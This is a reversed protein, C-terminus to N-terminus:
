PAMTGTNRLLQGSYSNRVGLESIGQPSSGQLSKGQHPTGQLSGVTIGPLYDQRWRGEKRTRPPDWGLAWRGRGGSRAVLVMHSSGLGEQSGRLAGFPERHRDRVQLQATPRHPVLFFPRPRLPCLLGLCPESGLPVM